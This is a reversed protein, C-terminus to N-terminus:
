LLSDLFQWTMVQLLHRASARDKREIKYVISLYLHSCASLHSNAVGGTFEGGGGGGRSRRGSNVDAAVSLLRIANRLSIIKLEGKSGGGEVMREISEIGLELNAIVSHASSKLCCLASCKERLRRRLAADKLFRGAHASLISVVARVAADDIQPHGSASSPPPDRERDCDRVLLDQLSPM